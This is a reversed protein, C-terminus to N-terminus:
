HVAARVHQHEAHALPRNQAHRLPHLLPPTERFAVDGAGADHRLIRRLIRDDDFGGLLDHAIFLGVRPREEHLVVLLIGHASLPDSLLVARAAKQLVLWGHRQFRLLQVPHVRQWVRPRPVRHVVLRAANRAKLLHFEGNGGLAPAEARAIEAREREMLPSDDCGSALGGDDRLRLLQNLARAELAINVVHAARRRVEPMRGAVLLQFRARTRLSLAQKGRGTFVHVGVMRLIHVDQLCQPRQRAHLLHEHAGADPEVVHKQVLLVKQHALQHLVVDAALQLDRRLVRRLVRQLVHALGVNRHKVLEAPAEVRRILFIAPILVKHRVEHATMGAARQVVRDLQCFVHLTGVQM